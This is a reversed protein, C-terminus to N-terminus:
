LPRTATAVARELELLADSLQILHRDDHPHADVLIARVGPIDRGTVAAVAFVIEDISATRPLKCHQALRQATGLRLSDLARLRASSKAYLRARGEMTETSRVTVPLNEIVLPGFRRGQWVAAAITVLILLVVVPTVWTPTLEDMGGSESPPLDAPSPLYWILTDREGLLGLAFAANGELAINMNSLAGTTGLISLSADDTEIRVYSYIESGVETDSQLCLGLETGFPVEGILRYGNSHGTITGARRVEGRECDADLPGEAYGATALFPAVADLADSGPDLVITSSSLAAADALQEASLYNAVDYIFLSANGGADDAARSAADLSDVAIVEVGQHRLVQVLARSGSPSANDAGLIPGGPETSGVTLLGILAFVVAAAAVVIWYLSRKAARRVTPTTVTM